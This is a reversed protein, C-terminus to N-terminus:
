LLLQSGGIQTNPQTTVKGMHSTFRGEPNSDWIRNLYRSCLRPQTAATALSHVAFSLVTRFPVTREKAGHDVTTDHFHTKSRTPPIASDGLVCRDARHTRRLALPTRPSTRTAGSSNEQGLM